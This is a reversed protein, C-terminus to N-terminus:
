SNLCTGCGHDVLIRVKQYNLGVGVLHMGRASPGGLVQRQRLLITTWQMALLSLPATYPLLHSPLTLGGSHGLPM